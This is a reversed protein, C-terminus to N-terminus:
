RKNCTVVYLPPIYACLLLLLNTRSMRGYKKEKVCNRMVNIQTESFNLRLFYTLLYTTEINVFM